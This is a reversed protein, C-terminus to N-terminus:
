YVTIMQYSSNNILQICHYWNRKMNLCYFSNLKGLQIHSQHSGNLSYSILKNLQISGFIYSILNHLIHLLNHKIQLYDLRGVWKCLRENYIMYCEQYIHNIGKFISSLCKFWDIYWFNSLYYPKSIHKTHWYIHKGENHAHSCILTNQISIHAL